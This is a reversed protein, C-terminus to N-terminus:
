SGFRTATWNLLLIVVSNSPVFFRRGFEFLQMGGLKDSKNGGYDKNKVDLYSDPLVWRVNPLEAFDLLGLPMLGCSRSCCFSRYVALYIEVMLNLGKLKYSLEESVLAGFAYYCRTSVSYIKM